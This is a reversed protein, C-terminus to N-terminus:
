WGMLIFESFICNEFDDYYTRIEYGSHLIGGQEKFESKCKLNFIQEGKYIVIAAGSDVLQKIYNRIVTSNGSNQNKDEVGHYLILTRLDCDKNAEEVLNAADQYRKATPSYYRVLSSDKEGCRLINNTYEQSTKSFFTKIHDLDVYIKYDGQEWVGMPEYRTNKSLKIEWANQSNAAASYTLIFLLLISKVFQFYSM